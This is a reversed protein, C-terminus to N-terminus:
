EFMYNILLTGSTSGSITHTSESLMDVEFSSSEDTLTLTGNIKTDDILNWELKFDEGSDVQYKLTWEAQTDVQSRVDDALSLDNITFYTNFAGSPANPPWEEDLREDFGDTAGDAQGFHLALTDELTNTAILEMTYVSRQDEFNATLDTNESITFTLPNNSSQQDGTWSDFTWGENSTAEVTIDQGEEYSGSAPSVSGGNSPSASVSL